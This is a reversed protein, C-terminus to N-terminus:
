DGHKDWFEENTISHGAEADKLGEDITNKEAHSIQDWWDGQVYSQKVSLLGKLLTEDDLNNIWDILEKKIAEIDM